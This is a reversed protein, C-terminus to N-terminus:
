DVPVLGEDTLMFTAGAIIIIVVTKECNYPPGECKNRADEYTGKVEVVSIYIFYRAEAENLAKESKALGVLNLGSLILFAALLSSIALKGTKWKRLVM